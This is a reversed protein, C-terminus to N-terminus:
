KKSAQTTYSPPTQKNKSAVSGAQKMNAISEEVSNNSSAENQEKYFSNISNYTFKRLWIPMNYITHFDYGGKGHFVM